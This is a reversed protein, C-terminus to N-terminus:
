IMSCIRQMLDFLEPFHTKFSELVSILKQEDELQKAFAKETLSEDELIHAFYNHIYSTVWGSAKKGVFANDVITFTSQFEEKKRQKISKYTQWLDSKGGFAIRLYNMKEAKRANELVNLFSNYAVESIKSKLFSLAFDYSKQNVLAGEITTSLAFVNYNLLYAHIAEVFEQHSPDSTSLLPQQYNIRLKQVM